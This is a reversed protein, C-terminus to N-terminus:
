RVPASFNALAVGSKRSVFKTENAPVFGMAAAKALTISNKERIYKFEMESIKSSLAGLENEMAQRKAVNRVTFNVAVVYLIIAAFCISGLVIITLRRNNFILEKAKTM